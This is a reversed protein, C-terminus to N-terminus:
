QQLGEIESLNIEYRRGETAWGKQVIKFRRLIIIEIFAQLFILLEFLRLFYFYSLTLLIVPRKTVTAAFVALLAIVSFDALILALAAQPQHMGLWLVPLIVLLQILYYITELLQYGIGFDIKRPRQGIKYKRVGQFFGRQWRLTQGYFDKITRPDQTYNIAEPVFRIRGLKKRHLQLTLDFDETLSSTDFDLDKIIDSNFCTVPGPLVAIMGFWSQIRRFIHQGYTYSFSRYNALWNGGMSQVFGVVASCDERNLYQYYIRFYNKSFISDADAVHMWCYSEDFAFHNFAKQVALAKGSRSVSLVHAEGLERLAIEHTKDDSNDDVVYIDEKELGATIASHITTEIILEENHAPLLLALKRRRGRKIITTGDVDKGM